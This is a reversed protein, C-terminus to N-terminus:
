SARIRLRVTEDYIRGQSTTIRNLITCLEGLTGGSLWVTTLGGAVSQSDKVVTGTAVTFNSTSITESTELRESWDVQYDLVEDPDKAPWTLM